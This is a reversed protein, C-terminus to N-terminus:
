KMKELDLKMQKLVMLLDGIKNKCIGFIVEADLDFYHHSIFDRIGKIKKWEILSYSALLKNDTIKDINKLSEGIAILKMCISDLKEQGEKTDMFDNQCIAFTCREQVIVIAEIIQELIDLVLEKDYM